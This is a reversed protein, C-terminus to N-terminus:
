RKAELAESGSPILWNCAIAGIVSAICAFALAITTSSQILSGGIASGIPFGIVNLSYSVATVRGLIEPPTRSQRLTLLAVDIPGSAMGSIALGVVIGTLGFESAVPWAAIAALMMGLAMVHRERGQTRLSGAALAALGGFIGVIAWLFGAVASAFNAGGLEKLILAPVAVFLIGWTIQHLSYGVALGRLTPSLAVLKLGAIADRLLGAEAHASLSVKPIRSAMIAAVLFLLAIVAITNTTGVAAVLVGGVSPGVVDVVSHISTDLANARDRAPLPVLRPLLTRIGAIGFPSTLSYCAALGLIVLPRRSDFYECIVIAAVIAASATLDLLFARNAGWRDLLAGAFPSIVLGPLVAAFALWGAFQPSGFHQLAHLVITLLFMMSALRYLSAAVVLSGVGPLALVHKYSLPSPEDNM